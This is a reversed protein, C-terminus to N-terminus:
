RWPEFKIKKKKRYHFLTYTGVFHAIITMVYSHGLGLFRGIHIYRVKPESITELIKDFRFLRRRWPRKKKKEDSMSDLFVTMPERFGAIYIFHEDRITKKKHKPSYEELELPNELWKRDRTSKHLSFM